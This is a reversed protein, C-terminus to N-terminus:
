IPYTLVNNLSKVKWMNQYNAQNGSQRLLISWALLHAESLDFIRSLCIRGAQVSRSLCTLHGPCCPFNTVLRNRGWSCNLKWTNTTFPMVRDNINKIWITALIAWFQEQEHFPFTLPESLSPLLSWSGFNLPPRGFLRNRKWHQAGCLQDKPGVRFFTPFSCARARGRLHLMRKNNWYKGKRGM